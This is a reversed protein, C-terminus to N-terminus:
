GFKLDIDRVNAGVSLLGLLIDLLDLVQERGHCSDALLLGLEHKLPLREQKLVELLSLSLLKGVMQVTLNLVAILHNLISLLLDLLNLILDVLDVEGELLSLLNNVILDPLQVNDSLLLDVKVLLNLELLRLNSIQISVNLSQIGIDLSKCLILLNQQLSEIVERLANCLLDIFNFLHFSKELVLVFDDLHHVPLDSILLLSWDELKWLTVQEILHKAM